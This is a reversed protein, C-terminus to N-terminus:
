NTNILSHNKQIVQQKLKKNYQAKYNQYNKQLKKTKRKKKLKKTILKLKHIIM